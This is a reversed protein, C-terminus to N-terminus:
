QQPRLSNRNTISEGAAASLIPLRTSKNANHVTSGYSFLQMHTYKEFNKETRLFFDTLIQCVRFVKLPRNVTNWLIRTGKGGFKCNWTLQIKKYMVM